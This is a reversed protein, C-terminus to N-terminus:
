QTKPKQHAADTAFIHCFEAKKQAYSIFEDYTLYGKEDLDAQRFTNQADEQCLGLCRTAVEEFHTATLRGTGTSDYLKFAYSLLQSLPAHQLSLFAACLLYDPFSALGTSRQVFIDFLRQAHPDAASIGLRAFFEASTVWRPRGSMGQAAVHLELQSRELGLHTRLESVERVSPAAPIGLQKARAILRCDDYTYDLVPVGLAKAMVDRVNRAYLKPDRKEEESPYYVPLFEIECSSHIQTLTLWLLKLAGPGEWTWTVTDRANPYRITVPQVPVGPYFGGPKFTILCSRNTCTGEPFILVQPWDEKSTAREIIEKITNQRSNPDDRWVYVPQTYNILQGIFPLRATDAKAVVSPAGLVVIAIADFFSSHPAMVVVPADRPHAPKHHHGLIRVRHFGAAVVVLRMLSLISFRLKSRWGTMPKRRLDEESLGYLGICAILWATVILYCIVIVRFPLLIVTFIATKIKDYTNDLELKHVFPNLIEARMGDSSFAGTESHMKGNM